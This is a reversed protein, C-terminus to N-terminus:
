RPAPRKKTKKGAPSAPAPEPAPTGAIEPPPLGRSVAFQRTRGLAGGGPTDPAKKRSPTKSSPM